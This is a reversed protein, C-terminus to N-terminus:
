PNRIVVGWEAYFDDLECECASEFAALLAEPPAIDYKYTDYYRQLAAFFTEDGLQERLADFFLAGKLYVIVAYANGRGRFEQLSRTVREEGEEEEFTEVTQEYGSILEEFRAPREEQFYLLSSYTTLAEDQWPDALVDNGVVAYWWMHAVEHATAIPLFERGSENTYLGAGTLALGPYEVGAANQMPIAAVELEEYPYPGFRDDFIRLSDAAVELTDQWAVEGNPLGWHVVRVDEVTTERAQYAPGAAVTFDRAPGSVFTRQGVRDDGESTEVASGTTVLHWDSPATIAVRYLATESVVADGEGVVPTAYWEGDKRIALLPYWNALTLVPGAETETRTFIGYTDSSEFGVPVEGEFTLDVVTLGGPALPEPLELRVATEDSLFVEPAVSQGAVNASTIELAGGYVLDANPFTRFVLDDLTEESENVFTIRATGTYTADDQLVLSLDYCTNLELANWDPTSGPRMAQAQQEPPCAELVSAPLPEPTQATETPPTETPALATATAAPAEPTVPPETPEVTEAPAPTATPATTLPSQCATVLLLALVILLVRKMPQGDDM